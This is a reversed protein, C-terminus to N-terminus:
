VIRELDDFFSISENQIISEGIEKLLIVKLHDGLNKKDLTMIALFSDWEGVQFETPLGIQKALAEIEDATGPKTIGKKESLRTIAVMGITIAEGHSYKSYDTYTELAHGITHGFNLLMREGTDKEDTEVVRRKIDCCTYLIDEIHLMLEERTHMTKLFDFFAANKICGYKIVEGMGDRFYHDPLTDLMQPDIFVKKPQYFAGVLNKGRALDVGVKGGISSDVQALLSTPIQIFPVGRLYSSAAFGTVDGIVGGGLAIILEDRTLQFDLLQDYIRPLVMFDKTHEGAPLTILVTEYGAAQLGSELQSGYYMGVNNDTVIAIKSGSYIKKIEEPLRHRLGNEIVITYSNNGLGVQLESM